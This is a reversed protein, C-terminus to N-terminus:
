RAAQHSELQSADGTLAALQRRFGLAEETRSQRELTRALLLLAFTDTPDHALLARAEREALPLAARHYHARALYERVLTLGPDDDLIRQFRDVATAYDRAEFAQVALNFTLQTNTM